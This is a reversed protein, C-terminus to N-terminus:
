RPPPRSRPRCCTRGPRPWGPGRGARARPRCERSRPKGGGARRRRVSRASTSASASARSVTSAHGGAVFHVTSYLVTSYARSSSGPPVARPVGSRSRRRASPAPAPAGAATRSCGGRGAASRCARPSRARRRRRRCSGARRHAPRARAQQERDGDVARVDRCDLSEGAGVTRQRRHLLGEGVTVAQLAAEARGAEQGRDGGSQARRGIGSSSCARSM